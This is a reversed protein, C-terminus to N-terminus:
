TTSGGQGGGLECCVKREHLSPFHPNQMCMKGGSIPTCEVSVDLGDIEVLVDEADAICM